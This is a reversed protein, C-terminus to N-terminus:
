VTFKIRRWARKGDTQNELEASLTYNGHALKSQIEILYDKGIIEELPRSNVKKRKLGSM